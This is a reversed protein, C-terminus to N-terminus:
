RRPIRRVVFRFVAPSRDVNGARDRASVRLVHRGVRFWRLFQPGCRRTPRRDFNCLFDVGRENSRFRFFVRRFRWPTWVVRRPRRAFGTRPAIRNRSGAQSNADSFTSGDSGSGDGPTPEDPGPVPDSAPPEPEPDPDPMPDPDPDPMPDPPDGVPAGLARGVNLRGGSALKGSILANSDVSTTLDQKAQSPTRVPNASFILAAAGTVHPTAMSTGSAYALQLEPYTSLVRVGPAAIDVSEDGYNSFSALEDNQNTAAVCILNNSTYASAEDHACPYNPTVDNDDGAEDDGGNGAAFVFLTEPSDNLAEREALSFSEGGLSGNLVRAGNAAAYRYADIMAAIPCVPEPPDSSDLACVKLVMLSANQAVGTVGLENDGEALATGAVHTGHWGVDTPDSDDDDSDALSDGVFDYGNKDDVYGNGDDDVGPTGNVEATNEWLQGALEPHALDAGTDMVAVVIDASGTEIDWAEPADIDADFTGTVNLPGIEQGTNHLGWQQDFFEDDPIANLRRLYNPEAYLVRPDVRLKGVTEAM